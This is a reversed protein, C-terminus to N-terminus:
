GLYLTGTFPQAFTLTTLGPAHVIDTDVEAGDPDVVVTSPAYSLGHNVAFSAAGALHYPAPIPRAPACKSFEGQLYALADAMSTPTFSGDLSTLNAWTVAQEGRGALDNIQITDPLVSSVTAVLSRAQFAGNGAIVISGSTDHFGIALATM